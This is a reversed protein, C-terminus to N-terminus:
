RFSEIDPDLLPYVRIKCGQQIQAKDLFEKISNELLQCRQQAANAAAHSERKEKELDGKHRFLCFILHCCVYYYLKDKM